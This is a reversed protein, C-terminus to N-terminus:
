IEETRLIIYATTPYKTHSKRRSLQILVSIFVICAEKIKEVYNGLYHLKVSGYNRCGLLGLDDRRWSDLNHLLYGIHMNLIMVIIM